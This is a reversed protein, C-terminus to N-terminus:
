LRLQWLLGTNRDIFYVSEERQDMQLHIADFDEVIPEFLVELLNTQTSIRYFSDTFKTMGAYWADPYVSPTINSSGACILDESITWTCKEPLIYPEIRFFRGTTTNYIFSSFRDQTSQSYIIFTGSPSVNTTLGNINGLVRRLVTDRTNIFYLYGPIRSSAKTQLYIRGETPWQLLWETFPFRLVEKIEKNGFTATTVVANEQNISLRAHKKGQPGSVFQEINNNLFFGQQQERTGDKKLEPIPVIYTGITQDDEQLFRLAVSKGNDGFVAEYINEIFINSVQVANEGNRREFVYGSRRHVYRLVDENITQKTIRGNVDSFEVEKPEKFLLFGAIPVTTIQTLRARNEESIVGIIPDEGETTDIPVVQDGKPFLPRFLAPTNETPTKGRIFFFWVGGGILALIMIFIFFKKM